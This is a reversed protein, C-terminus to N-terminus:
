LAETPWRLGAGDLNELHLPCGGNTLLLSGLEGRLEGPRSGIPLNNGGGKSNPTVIWINRFQYTQGLDQLMIPGTPAHGLRKAAGKRDGLEVDDHILV